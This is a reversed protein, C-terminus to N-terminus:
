SVACPQIGPVIWQSLAPSFLFLLVLLALMTMRTTLTKWSVSFIPPVVLVQRDTATHFHHQGFHCQMEWLYSTLPMEYSSEPSRLQICFLGISWILSSRSRAVVQMYMYAVPSM